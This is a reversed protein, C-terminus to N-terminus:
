RRQVRGLEGISLVRGRPDSLSVVTSASFRWARRAEVIEREVEAGKLFLGEAGRAFFPEAYALLRELPACARATVREVSLALTEARAHHVVAPLDLAEVVETLFRCRKGMSEVLHVLAGSRGKLLIALVLGPLGAGSGLDAWVRADPAFWLLQASDVFHRRWFEGLTSAGVLNMTENAAALRSRFAEIDAERTATAGTAEFFGAPLDPFAEPRGAVSM